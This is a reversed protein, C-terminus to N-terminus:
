CADLVAARDAPECALAADLVEDIQPARAM